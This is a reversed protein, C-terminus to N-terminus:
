TGGNGFGHSTEMEEHLTPDSEHIHISEPIINKKRTYVLNKGYRVDVGVNGDKESEIETEVNDVKTEVNEPGIETEVDPGLNLDPLVLSEDEKSTNEGKERNTKISESFFSNNLSNPPLNRNDLYYLGNWERANGITRGSHKDSYALSTTVTTPTELESLFSKLRKIEDQNLPVFGKKSMNVSTM